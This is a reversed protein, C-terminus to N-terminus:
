RCLWPGTQRAARARPAIEEFPLGFMDHLVFDMREPPTLSELVVRLALWVSDAILAQQEPDTAPESVVPDPLRAQLPTEARHTRSRLMDLCVRGVVTTLWGGLDGNEDAEPRALRLWAEQVADDAEALSGLM